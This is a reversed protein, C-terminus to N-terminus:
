FKSAVRALTAEHGAAEEPPLLDCSHVLRKTKLDWIKVAAGAHITCLFSRGMFQLEVLQQIDQPVGRNFFGTILSGLISANPNLEFLTDTSPNMAELCLVNGLSTAICITDSMVALATPVGLRDFYDALPISLVVEIASSLTQLLTTSTAGRGSSKEKFHTIAHLGGDAALCFIKTGHATQCSAISPLLPAPFRLHVIDDETGSAHGPVSFHRLALISPDDPDLEWILAQSDDQTASIAIPNHVNAALSCGVCTSPTFEFNTPGRDAEIDITPILSGDIKTTLPVEVAYPPLTNSSRLM